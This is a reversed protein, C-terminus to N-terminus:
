KVPGTAPTAPAPSRGQIHGQEHLWSQTDALSAEFRDVIRDIDAETAILPPCFAITDVINRVILGHHHARQYLYGGATGAPEFPRRAAKEAVLEVGAILGAGRVEGVLPHDALARLRRQLVAGVKAANEILGEEEIIKLNELAVATAVPHGTTTFGHGFTGIRATQDAIPQYLDDSILVAALPQYSSTLQKSVVMVDPDIGYYDSGFTRGLRGLGCIVEDAIVLVDHKRCVAQVKEWYGAPPPIVGGAGMLPEGIFAAVTEPGERLITDELESALREAFQAESEGPAAYRYYHPCGVHRVAPIPLDFAKHNWPLGTLSGSAVTIGHYARERSIIKKKEPRGLANNYYWVLKVVTDNAESGSNTFFVKGMRNDALAVLREALEVAPRNSKQSFSHYYPLAEFQRQAAAALRPESFGVAVSWLGAMAEIYANGEDDFVQIGEGREIVLPGSEELKRANTYPHLMHAVDRAQVSNGRLKM